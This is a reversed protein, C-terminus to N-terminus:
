IKRKIADQLKAINDVNGWPIIGYLIKYIM